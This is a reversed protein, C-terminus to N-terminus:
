LASLWSYCDAPAYGAEFVRKMGKAVLSHYCVHFFLFGRYSVSRTKLLHNKRHRTRANGDLQYVLGCIIGDSQSDYPSRPM